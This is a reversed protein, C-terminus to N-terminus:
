EHSIGKRGVQNVLRLLREGYTPGDMVALRNVQGRIRECAEADDRLRLATACAQPLNGIRDCRVVGEMEALSRFHIQDMHMNRGVEGEPLLMVAPKVNILSELLLTSLPSVVVEVLSLLKNTIAYDILFLEKRHNKVRRMYFEKMHPDLTINRFGITFFDREGPTLPGRWPHPRYIIHCGRLSGSEAAGELALLYDTELDSSGSGAYLIIKKDAPVQFLRALEECSEAPPKRYVQFQAAGFCHIREKPVKLYTAAHERTQEGWVVLHDMRGISASKATPNDWSNMLVVLPVSQREAALAVENQFPGNLLSPHVIIDPKEAELLKVIEPHLGMVKLYVWKFLPFIVPRGLIECRRTFRESAIAAALRRRARYNPTGRHNKLVATTTLAYWQGHRRRDVRATLVRRLGLTRFDVFMRRNEYPVDSEDNFVYTVDHDRELTALQGSHIFHRVVPDADIFIFIKM